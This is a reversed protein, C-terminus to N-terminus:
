KGYRTLFFVAIGAVVILVIALAASGGRSAAPMGEVEKVGTLMPKVLNEKKFFYYFAIAALHLGVLVMLVNENLKHLTTIKDSLEKGVLKYLPAEFFFDDSNTLFGSVAQFLLAALMALVSLAGMPNHGLSTEKGGAITNKLYVIVAGPGKVFSAFRAHTGGVFGWVVRFLLLALIAFGCWTHYQLKGMKITVFAGIMAALLSWHFIRVGADWVVVRQKNLVTTDASNSMNM